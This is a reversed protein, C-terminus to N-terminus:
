DNGKYSFGFSRSTKMNIGIDQIRYGTQKLPSYDGVGDFLCVRVRGGLAV